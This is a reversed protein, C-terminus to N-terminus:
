PIEAVLATGTCALGRLVRLEAGQVDVVLLDIEALRAESRVTDLDRYCDAEQGIHAGVHLIREVEVGHRRLVDEIPYGAAVRVEEDFTLV